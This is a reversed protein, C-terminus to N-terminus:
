IGGSHPFLMDQIMHFSDSSLKPVLGLPSTCFYGILQELAKHTFGRSYHGAAQESAIYSSIFNPSLLSLNHNTFYIFNQCQFGFM